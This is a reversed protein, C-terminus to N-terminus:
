DPLFRHGVRRRGDDHQGHRYLNAQVGLRVRQTRQGSHGRRPNPFPRIQRAGTGGSRRYLRATRHHRRFFPSDYRANKKALIVVLHSADDVQTAMGWSVPKLQARLERNQVVLFQWPESGVSSPSLRGAQLVAEFDSDSIKKAPDYARTAARRQWLATLQEPTLIPKM